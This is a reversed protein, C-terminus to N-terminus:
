ESISFTHTKIPKNNVFYEVKYEGLGYKKKLDATQFKIIDAFNNCNVKVPSLPIRLGNPGIIRTELKKKTSNM